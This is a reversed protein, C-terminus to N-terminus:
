LPPEFFPAVTAMVGHRALEAVAVGVAFARDDPSVGNLDLHAAEPDHTAGLTDHAIKAFAEHALTALYGGLPRGDPDRADLGARDLGLHRTVAMRERAGLVRVPMTGDCRARAGSTVLRRLTVTPTVVVVERCLPCRARMVGEAVERRKDKAVGFQGM